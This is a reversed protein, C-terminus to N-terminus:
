NLLYKYILYKPEYHHEQIEQDQNGLYGFVCITIDPIVPLAHFWEKHQQFDIANFSLVKVQENEPWSNLKETILSINRAALLITYGQKRLKKALEWGIDSSAGLILVTRQNM